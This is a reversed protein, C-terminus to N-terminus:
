FYKVILQRGDTKDDGGIFYVERGQVEPGNGGSEVLSILFNNCIEM